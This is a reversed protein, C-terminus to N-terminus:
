EMLEVLQHESIDRFREKAKALSEEARAVGLEAGHLQQALNNLREFQTDTPGARDASYAPATRPTTM